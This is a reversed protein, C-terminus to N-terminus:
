MFLRGIGAFIGRASPGISYGIWAPGFLTEAVVGGSVQFEYQARDLHNFASGNELWLGALVPGGLFDPLRAVENLFGTTLVAFHDGRREGEDFADLRLPLGLPFQETPLPNRDFSTGGGAVVFARRSANRWSWFHSAGLELQILNDNGRDLLDDALDGPDPAGLVYRASTVFRLGRSPVM